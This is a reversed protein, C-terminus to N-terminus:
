SIIQFQIALTCACRVGRCCYHRWCDQRGAPCVPHRLLHLRTVRVLTCRRTGLAAHEHHRVAGAVLALIAAARAAATSAPPAFLLYPVILARVEPEPSAALSAGSFGFARPNRCM